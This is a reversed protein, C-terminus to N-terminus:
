KSKIFIQTCFLSAGKAAGVGTQNFDGEINALHPPSALWLDVVNPAFADISTAAVNEAGASWPTTRGIAALRDTLGDHGFPTTGAAMNKSHQRAQEAIADNWLM